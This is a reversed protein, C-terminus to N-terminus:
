VKEWNDETLRDARRPTLGQKYAEFFEDDDLQRMEEATLLKKEAMQSTSCLSFYALAGFNRNSVSSILPVGLLGGDDLVPTMFLVAGSHLSTFVFYSAQKLTHYM